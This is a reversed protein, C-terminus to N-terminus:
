CYYSRIIVEQLLSIYVVSILEALIFNGLLELNPTSFKKKLPVLRSKSTAFSIKINGARSVSKIYVCGGYALTSVESFGHLYVFEIPDSMDYVFYCIKLYVNNYSKFNEVINLWKKYFLEGIQDDWGIGSWCIGQFLLKLKVTLPQLLVVPDYISSIISLIRRKSPVIEIVDEFM